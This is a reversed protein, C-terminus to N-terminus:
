VFRPGLPWGGVGVVCVANVGCVGCLALARWDIRMPLGARRLMLVAGANYALASCWAGVVLAAVGVAVGCRMM